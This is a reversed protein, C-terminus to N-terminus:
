QVVTSAYPNLINRTITYSSFVTRIKFYKQCVLSLLYAIRSVWQFTIAGAPCQSHWSSQCICQAKAILSWIFTNKFCFILISSIYDLIYPIQFSCSGAFPFTWGYSSGWSSRPSLFGPSSRPCSPTATVMPQDSSGTNAWSSKQHRHHTLFCSSSCCKRNPPLSGGPQRGKSLFLKDRCKSGHNM